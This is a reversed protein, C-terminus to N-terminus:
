PELATFLARIEDEIEAPTPDKLTAGIQERLVTRYRRRLRHVAAQIAGETRGLEEALQAYPVSRSGGTLVAQLREFLAARGSDAYERALQDLVRDLLTVAWARDFLREATMEDAAERLYRGEAEPAAIPITPRGGGRKRARERDRQDALFYTCDTKLFARFRGKQPDAAIVLNKELLRTFYSQTLDRAAEPDAGRRRIFAYIPFWYSECLLELAQRAQPSPIGGARAVLSWHTTPFPAQAESEARDSM